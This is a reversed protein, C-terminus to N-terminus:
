MQVGVGYGVAMAGINAATVHGKRGNSEPDFLLYSTEAIESTQPRIAVVGVPETTPLNETDIPHIGWIQGDEGAIDARLSSGSQAAGEPLHQLAASTPPLHVDLQGDSIQRLLVGGGEQTDTVRVLEPYATPSSVTEGAM